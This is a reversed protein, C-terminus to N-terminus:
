EELKTKIDEIYLENGGSFSLGEGGCNPCKFVPRRADFSHGCDACSVTIATPNITIASDRTMAHEERVVDWAASLADPIVARFPGCKVVIEAVRFREGQEDLWPRLNAM